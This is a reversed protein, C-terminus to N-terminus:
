VVPGGYRYEVASLFLEDWSDLWRRAHHLGYRLADEQHDFPPLEFKPVETNVLVITNGDLVVSERVAVILYGPAAGM